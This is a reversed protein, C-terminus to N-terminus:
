SILFHHIFRPDLDKKTVNKYENELDNFLNELAQGQRTMIKEHDMGSRLCLWDLFSQKMAVRIPGLKKGVTWLDDFFRKLQDVTLPLIDETLGLCYKAWHTLIFNKYNVYTDEMQGASFQMRSLLDDFVIIDNLINKTEGIDQLTEFERYLAGTKYNDYYLPKKILLGGLVGLWDEGWFALSLGQKEFWSTKRWQEARWKLKLAQRFGVRFISDLPYKKLLVVSQGTKASADTGTLTDLGINLYGCAKKVINSLEDQSRITKQDASVIRNCLGTFELQIQERVEEIEILKLSMTFLNKGKLFKSLYLPVPMFQKTKFDSILYKGTQKKFDKVDLSQYIGVAEEFPLFGKEALRINRLRYAEEESEDPIIGSSELLVNQYITHDYNVLSKFFGMLFANRYKEFDKCSEDDNFETSIFDNSFKIYFVDDFTFYENDFESPDQNTGRIKVKMNKFLYCEMFETKEEIFWKLFRRGDVKLLLDLWRTVVGMQLRDKEWSEVDLIYEWQKNSALSLLTLSDELGIDHILFYFDEENFSHILAAPQPHEFISNLAKEPTMTLIQERKIALEQFRIVAKKYEENKM